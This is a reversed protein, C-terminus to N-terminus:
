AGVKYQGVAWHCVGHLWAPPAVDRKRKRPRPWTAMFAARVDSPLLLAPAARAECAAAHCRRQWTLQHADMTLYVHNSRHRRGSISCERSTSPVVWVPGRQHVLREVVNPAGLVGRAFELAAQPLALAPASPARVLRPVEGDADARVRSAMVLSPTLRAGVPRLPRDLACRKSCGLVRWCQTRGYPATDVVDAHNPAVHARVFAGVEEPGSFPEAVYLHVHYSAKGGGCAEMILRSTSGAGRHAQLAHEATRAVARPVSADPAGRWEIDLYLARLRGHLVEYLSPPDGGAACVRRSVEDWTLQVRQRAGRVGYEEAFTATM